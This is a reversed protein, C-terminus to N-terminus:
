QHHEFRPTKGSSRNALKKQEPLPAATVIDSDIEQLATALMSGATRM